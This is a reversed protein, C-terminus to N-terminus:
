VDSDSMMLYHGDPDILRRASAQEFDPQGSRHRRAFVLCTAAVDNAAMHLADRTEDDRYCLLELHPPKDDASMATVHVLPQDLDDLRGQAPDDNVSRQTVKLGLSEYFAVSRRSDSVSIASHDIGVFPGDMSVSRWPEPTDDSPFALLELPHGEPDRFKFATVGGSSKPLHQPGDRTIPTWGTTASLRRMAADMDAVVIAFHQFILDCSRSHDPYLRGAHDIFQLLQIRQEGLTLTIRLARGGAPSLAGTRAGSLHEVSLRRFGLAAEYFGALRLADASNLRFCSLRLPERSTVVAM